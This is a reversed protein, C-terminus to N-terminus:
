VYLNLRTSIIHQYLSVVTLDIGNQGIAVLWEFYLACLGGADGVTEDRRRYVRHGRDFGAAAGFEAGVGRVLEETEDLLERRRELGLTPGGVVDGAGNGVTRAVRGADVNLAETYINYNSFSRWLM